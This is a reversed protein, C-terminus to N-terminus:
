KVSLIFKNKLENRKKKNKKLSYENKLAEAKTNYSKKYIILWKKGRTSKAGKSENHMKLRKKLNNTYGVYSYFLSNHQSILMYVFYKM